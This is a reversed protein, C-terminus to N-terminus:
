ESVARATEIMPWGNTVAVADTIPEVEVRALM